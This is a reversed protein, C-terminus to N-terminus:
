QYFSCIVCPLAQSEARKDRSLDTSPQFCTVLVWIQWVAEPFDSVSDSTMRSAPTSSTRLGDTLAPTQAGFEGLMGIVVIAAPGLSHRCSAVRSACALNRFSISDNFGSVETSVNGHPKLIM